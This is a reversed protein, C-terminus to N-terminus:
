NEVADIGLSQAIFIKASTKLADEIQMPLGTAITAVSAKTITALAGTPGKGFVLQGGDVIADGVLIQGTTDGAVLTAAAIDDGVYIGSAVQTGDTNTLSTNTFPTWKGSAAIRAMLTYQALVVSRTGEQLITEAEKVLPNEGLIFPSAVLASSTQVAM